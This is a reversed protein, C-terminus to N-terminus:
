VGRNNLQNAILGLIFVFLEGLVFWLRSVVVFTTSFKMEFGFHLLIALLIGERIGLGGPSIITLIGLSAAVAFFFSTIIEPQTETYASLLFYFGTCWCLWTLLFFLLLSFNERQNFISLNIRGKSFVSLKEIFWDRPIFHLIFLSMLLCLLIYPWFYISSHVYHTIVPLGIILGSWISIIQAYLSIGSIKKISLDTKESIYAARGIILWIKGPIYKAFISLGVSIISDKLSISVDNFILTKYWCVTQLLFGLFLFCISLFLSLNSYLKLPTIYEIQYLYILLFVLSTYFLFKRFKKM